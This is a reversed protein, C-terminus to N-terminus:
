LVCGVGFVSALDRLAAAYRQSKALFHCAGGALVAGKSPVDRSNASEQEASLSFARISRALSFAIADAQARSMAVIDSSDVRGRIVISPFYREVFGPSYARLRELDVRLVEVTAPQLRSGVLGDTAPGTERDFQATPTPSGPTSLSLVNRDVGRPSAAAYRTSNPAASTRQLNKAAM